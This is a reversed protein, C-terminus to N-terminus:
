ANLCRSRFFLLDKFMNKSCSLKVLKKGAHTALKAPISFILYKLRKASRKSLEKSLFNKFLLLLNYALMGTKFWLGNDGLTGSSDIGEEIKLSRLMDSILITGGFPTIKDNSREMTLPIRKM